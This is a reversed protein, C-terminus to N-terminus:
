VFSFYFKVCNFLSSAAYELFLVGNQDNIVTESKLICVQVEFWEFFSIKIKKNWTYNLGHKTFCM